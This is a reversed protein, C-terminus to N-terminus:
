ETILHLQAPPIRPPSPEIVLGGIVPHYNLDPWARKIKKLERLCQWRFGTIRAPGDAPHAGFQKYLQRWSLTLPQRLAFTKYVLWFYLDLGLPSRKLARLTHMTLALKCATVNSVIQDDSTRAIWEDRALSRSVWKHRASWRLWHKVTTNKPGSSATKVCHQRAAERVSRRAGLAVYARFAAYSKPTETPFRGRLRLTKPNDSRTPRSPGCKEPREAPAM